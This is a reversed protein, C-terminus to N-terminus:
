RESRDVLRGVEQEGEVRADLVDQDVLELVGRHRLPFQQGKESRAPLRLVAAREEEDAVRHLRDVAEALGLDRQKQIGPLAAEARDLEFPEGEASVEARLAAEDVPEVGRERLDQRALGVAARAGHRVRGRGRM